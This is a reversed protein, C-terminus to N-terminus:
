RDGHVLAAIEPLCEPSRPYALRRIEVSAVLTTLQDFARGMADRSDHGLQFSAELLRIVAERPAVRSASVRPAGPDLLYLRRLRRQGDARAVGLEGLTLRQKGELHGAFRVRRGAGTSAHRHAADPWLRVGIDVPVVRCRRAPEIVLCDDAAIAYGSAAMAMVISSKGQRPAGVFGLVGARSAAASAHLVVRSGHALLLPLVQSLLLQHLADRSRGRRQFATIRRNVFDLVFTATRHFRVLHGSDIRGITRWPQDLGPWTAHHYPRRMPPASAHSIRFRWEDAAPPAGSVGDITFASAITLDGVRYRYM